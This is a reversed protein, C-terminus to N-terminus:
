KVLLRICEFAEAFLSDIQTGRTYALARVYKEDFYPHFDQSKYQRLAEIKKQIDKEDLKVFIDTTFTLNNWPHEYGWISSTKKFARLAEDHISQHDQHTDNSSPILVLDPKIKRNLKIMDDLIEQRHSPFTRVDYDLLIVNEPPIGLIETAKKCEIKLIDDPFNKPVSAECSSFAIYYMEAKDKIKAMTGGYGLEGDDTHPSIIMIREFM